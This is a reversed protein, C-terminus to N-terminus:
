HTQSTFWKLSPNLSPPISLPHLIPSLQPFRTPRLPSARPHVVRPIDRGTTSKGKTRKQTPAPETPCYKNLEATSLPYIDQPYPVVVLGHGLPTSDDTRYAPVWWSSFCRNCTLISLKALRSQILEEAADRIAHPCCARPSVLASIQTSSTTM